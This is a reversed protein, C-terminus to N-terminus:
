LEERELEKMRKKLDTMVEHVMMLTEYLRGKSEHGQLQITLRALDAEIDKLSNLSQEVDPISTM